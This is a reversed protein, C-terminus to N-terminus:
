RGRHPAAGLERGALADIRQARRDRDIFHMEARPAPPRFIAVAPEGVALHGGLQRGIHLVEAEGMDFEHRDVLMWEVTGPAILRSAQECGGAAEARRFIKRSQDISAMPGAKGHENVPHRSMKGVVRMPKRLEVAGSEVFVGIRQLSPVEIPARQDVIVPARFHRIEQEGATQEPEVTIPTSPRRTSATAEM